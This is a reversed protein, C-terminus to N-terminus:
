FDIQVGLKVLRGLLIQTPVLWTAGTTGYTTNVALVPNANFLNYLDLVGKIKQQGSLAFIRAVRFDLQNLRDLLLAGPPVVNVTVTGNSGAALNRGLSPAIQANTFVA